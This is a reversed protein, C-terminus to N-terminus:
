GKKTGTLHAKFEMVFNRSISVLDSDKGSFTGVTLLYQITNLIELTNAVNKVEAENPSTEPSTAEVVPQANEM